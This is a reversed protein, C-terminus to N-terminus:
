KVVLVLAVNSRRDAPSHTVKVVKFLRGNLWVCEEARPICPLNEAYFFDIELGDHVFYVGPRNM